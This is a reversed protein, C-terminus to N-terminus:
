FFFITIVQSTSKEKSDVSAYSNRHNKNVEFNSYDCVSEQLSAVSRPKIERGKSPNKGINKQAYNQTTCFNNSFIASSASRKGPIGETNFNIRFPTSNQPGPSACRHLVQPSEQRITQDQMSNITPFRMASTSRAGIQSRDITVARKENVFINENDSNYNALKQLEPAIESNERFFLPKQVILPKKNSLLSTMVMKSIERKVAKYKDMTPTERNSITCSKLVKALNNYSCEELPNIRQTPSSNETQIQNEKRGNSQVEKTVQSQKKSESQTLIPTENPIHNLTQIESKEPEQFLYTPPVRTSQPVIKEPFKKFVPKKWPQHDTSYIREAERDVTLTKEDFENSLLHLNELASAEKSHALLLVQVNTLEEVQLPHKNDLQPISPKRDKLLPIRWENHPKQDPRSSEILFSLIRLFLKGLKM